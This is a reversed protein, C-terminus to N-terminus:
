ADTTTLQALISNIRTTANFKAQTLDDAPERTLVYFKIKSETGSPRVIVKTADALTFWMVNSAPLDLFNIVNGTQPDKNQGILLDAVAIVEIDNMTAPPDRRLNDMMTKIKDAGQKGPLILNATGEQYYGFRQYLENLQEYLTKGQEAAYAASDAIYAASTVADKDRTYTTPMYGYSEEAGFLYQREEKGLAAEQEFKCVWEGIWKFGTLTEIVDAGYARAIDKMMDSSVITSILVSNAPVQGNTSRQECIYYTLLAAIQNGTILVFDNDLDRVAIGVRDADPDTGIVLDAEQQKALEIGLDLAAQEEPNPSEVTPFEGNPEAQQPVEVVNQFGRRRLAQPILVGGTGHISTFVIKLTKGQRRSVDPNLCSADVQQLFQEDIDHGIIKITGEQRAQVYDASKINSFCGVMRVQDIIKQSHPPTVQVGDSWYAKFGNYQPPNHSATIVVGATCGLHRIAFSLEPTPRLGEFLYATVGNGALVCATRQAFLDSFRRCDYAIAIGARQAASGQQAVYNALGQAAAGVTYINMRNLGAGIIGRLGGTGFELMRYFRDILENDNGSVQLDFIEQKDPDAIAPDNLWANIAIQTAPEM